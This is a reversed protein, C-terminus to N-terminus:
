KIHLEQNPEKSNFIKICNKCLHKLKPDNKPIKKIENTDIFPDDTYRIIGCLNYYESQWNEAEILHIIEKKM